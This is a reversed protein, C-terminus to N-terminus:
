NFYKYQRKIRIVEEYDLEQRHLLLQRMLCFPGFYDQSMSVDAAIDRGTLYASLVYETFELGLTRNSIKYKYRGAYPDVDLLHTLEIPFFSQHAYLENVNLRKLNVDLISKCYEADGCGHRCSFSCGANLLLVLEIGSDVLDNRMTESRLYNKGVVVSDFNSPIDMSCPANFSLRLKVDPLNRKFFDSYEPLCVVMDPYVNNEISYTKLCLLDEYSLGVTNVALEAQIGHSKVVGFFSALHLDPNRRDFEDALGDRSYYRKGLPVSYYVSEIYPGYRSFFADLEKISADLTLGVSFKSLLRQDISEALM